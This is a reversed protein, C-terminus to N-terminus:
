PNDILHESFDELEEKKGFPNLGYQNDYPESKKLLLYLNYYPIFAFLGSKGVDHMRRTAIAFSPVIMALFYLMFIPFFGEMPSNLDVFLLFLIYIGSNFIIFSWYEKRTARGTFVAYKDKLIKIYWNM